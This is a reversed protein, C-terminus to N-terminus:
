PSFYLLEPYCRMKGILPSDPRRGNRIILQDYCQGTRKLPPELEFFTVNLKIQQGNEVHLIYTCNLGGLLTVFFIDFSMLVFVRKHEGTYRRPFRFSRVVGSNGFFNRDCFTTKRVFSYSLYFANREAAPRLSSPKKASGTTSTNISPISATSENATSKSSSLARDISFTASRLVYTIYLKTGTSSIPLPREDPCFRRILAGDTDNVLIYSSRESCPKRYYDDEFLLASAETLQFQLLVLYSQNAQLEWFCLETAPREGLRELTLDVVPQGQRHTGGCGLSFATYHGSFGKSPRSRDTVLTFRLESGMSFFPAPPSSGCYKQGGFLLYDFRCKEDPEIDMEEITLKVAYGPPAILVYTCNKSSQLPAPYGPSQILTSSKTTDVEM